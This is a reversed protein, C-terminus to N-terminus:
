KEYFIRLQVQTGDAMPKGAVEAPTTQSGPKYLPIAIPSAPFTEGALKVSVVVEDPINEPVVSLPLSLDGWDTVSSQPDITGAGLEVVNGGFSAAITWAILESSPTRGYAVFRVSLKEFRSIPKFRQIVGNGPLLPAPTVYQDSAFPLINYSKLLYAGQLPCLGLGDNILGYAHLTIGPAAHLFSRWEDNDGKTKFGPLGFGVIKEVGDALIILRLPKNQTDRALGTVNWLDRNDYILVEATAKAPQVDSLSGSCASPVVPLGTRAISQGVLPAFQLLPGTPSAPLSLFWGSPMTPTITPIGSDIYKAWVKWKLDDAILPTNAVAPLLGLEILAVSAALANRLYFGGFACCLFWLSFVSGPYFYRQAGFQSELAARFKLMGSFAIGLALLLMFIKQTRYPKLCSVAIAAVFLTIGIVVGTSNLLLPSQIRFTTMIRFLPMTIWISQAYPVPTMAPAAEPNTAISAFQVVAGFGVVATLVLLRRREAKDHASILRWLYLPALFISFPGSFAMLGLFAAEFVLVIRSGPRMFLIAFAGIPLVWQVNILSGLEEQGLPVIVVALALLPKYPMDLRPSTVLLVVVLDLFLGFYTHIWPAAFASFHSAVTAGLAQVLIFYGAGTIALSKWGFAYARSFVLIDEGWFQPNTFYTPMRLYLIALAAVVTAIRVTVGSMSLDYATRRPLSITANSGRVPEM